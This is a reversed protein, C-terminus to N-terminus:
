LVNTFGLRETTTTVQLGSPNQKILFSRLDDSNKWFGSLKDDFDTTWHWKTGYSPDYCDESFKLVWHCTFWSAPRLNNQGPVGSTYEVEAVAGWGYFTDFIHAKYCIESTVIVNDGIPKNNLYPYSMDGSTGNGRFTWYNVIFGEASVEPIPVVKVAQGTIGHGTLMAGFFDVWAMCQGDRQSLLSQVYRSETLYSGYYKLEEGDKRCVNRGTFASWIANVISSDSSYGSANRCGIYAVTEFMPVSARYTLHLEHHSSSRLWSLDENQANQEGFGVEWALEAAADYRVKPSSEFPHSATLTVTGDGYTVPVSWGWSWFSDNWAFRVKKVAAEVDFNSILRTPESVKRCFLHFTGTASSVNTSVYAIPHYHLDRRANADEGMDSIGDLDNDRWDYGTYTESTADKKIAINGHFTVEQIKYTGVRVLIIRSATGCSATVIYDGPQGPSHCTAQLPDDTSWEVNGSAFTWSISSKVKAFEELTVNPELTATLDFVACPESYIVEKEQWTEGQAPPEMRASSKAGETLEIQRIGVVKMKGRDCLTIFDVDNGRVSYTRPRPTTMTGAFWSPVNWWNRNFVISSYGMKNEGEVDWNSERSSGDRYATYEVNAGAPVAINKAGNDHNSRIIYNHFHIVGSRESEPPKAVKYRVNSGGLMRVPLRSAPPQLLQWGDIATVMVDASFTEPKGPALVFFDDGAEIVEVDPHDCSVVVCQNRDSAAACDLLCAGVFAVAAFAKFTNRTTSLGKQRYARARSDTRGDQM